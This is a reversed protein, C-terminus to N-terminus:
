DYSFRESLIQHGPVGLAILADEAVEMM